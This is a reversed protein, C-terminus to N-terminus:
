AQLGAAAFLQQFRKEWTHDRLARRYGAQRIMDAERPHELLYKARDKFEDATRWAVVEREIDYYLSLEDSYQPFYLAGCLPAEFDRLRIHTTVSGGAQGGSFVNCLNAVISSRCILAVMDEVNPVPAMIMGRLYKLARRTRIMRAARRALHAPGNQSLELAADALFNRKKRKGAPSGANNEGLRSYMHIPLGKRVIKALWIARDAYLTGTFLVPIDRPGGLPRYVKPNAGMQVHIPRAGVATYQPLASLEPVWCWDYAPSIAAVLHFQHVGNCYFNMTPVGLKRIAQIAAPDIHVSYFYTLVLDIPKRRHEEEVTQVFLESRLARAESDVASIEALPSDWDQQSTVVEHGSRLLADGLNAAWLDPVGNRSGCGVGALLIRM